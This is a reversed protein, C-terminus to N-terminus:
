NSISVCPKWIWSICVIYLFSLYPELVEIGRINTFSGFVLWDFFIKSRLCRSSYLIRTPGWFVLLKATDDSGFTRDSAFQSCVIYFASFSIKRRFTRFKGFRRSRTEVTLCVVRGIVPSVFEKRFNSFGSFRRFVRVVEYWFFIWSWDHM